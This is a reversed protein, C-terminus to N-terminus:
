ARKRCCQNQRLRDNIQDYNHKSGVFIRHKSTSAPLNEALFRTEDNAQFLNDKLLLYYHLMFRGAAFRVLWLNYLAGGCNQSAM